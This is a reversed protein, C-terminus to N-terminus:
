KAHLALHDSQSSGFRDSLWSDTSKSAARAVEKIFFMGFFPIALM